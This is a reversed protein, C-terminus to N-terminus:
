ERKTWIDATVAVQSANQLSALINKRMLDFMLGIEQQLLYLAERSEKNDILKTALSNATFDKALKRVATKQEPHQPLYKSHM